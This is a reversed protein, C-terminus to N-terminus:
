LVSKFIKKPRTSINNTLETEQINIISSTRTTTIKTPLADVDFKMNRYNLVTTATIKTPDITETTLLSNIVTNPVTNPVKVIRFLPNNLEEIGWTSGDPKADIVDGRQPNTANPFKPDNKNQMFVLLETM